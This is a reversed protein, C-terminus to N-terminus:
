VSSENDSNEHELWMTVHGYRDRTMDTQLVSFFLCNHVRDTGSLDHTDIEDIIYIYGDTQEKKDRETQEYRHM